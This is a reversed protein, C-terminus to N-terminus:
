ELDVCLFYIFSGLSRDSKLEALLFGGGLAVLLKLSSTASDLGAVAELCLFWRSREVAPKGSMGTSQLSATGNHFNCFSPHLKWVGNNRSFQGEAQPPCLPLGDPFSSCNLLFTHKM